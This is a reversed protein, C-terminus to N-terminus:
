EKVRHLIEIDVLGQAEDDSIEWEYQLEDDSLVRLYDVYTKYIENWLVEPEGFESVEVVPTTVRRTAFGEGLPELIMVIPEGVRVRTGIQMQLWEEDRRMPRSDNKTTRPMRVVRNAAEDFVYRTGSKTVAVKM